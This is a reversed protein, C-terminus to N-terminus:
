MCITMVAHYACLLWNHKLAAGREKHLIPNNGLSGPAHCVPLNCYLRCQTRPLGYAPPSLDLNAFSRGLNAM